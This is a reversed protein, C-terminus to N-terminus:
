PNTTTTSEDRTPHMGCTATLVVIAHDEKWPVEEVTDVDFGTEEVLQQWFCTSVFQHDNILPLEVIGLTGTPKCVRHLEDIIRRSETESLDHLVMNVTLVDVSNDQFPLDTGDGRVFTVDLDATATNRAALQPGNGLIVRDDFRDVGIVTSNDLHSALGVLSRGTGCGVDVVTDADELPLHAALVEYKDDHVTWPRPRFLKRLDTAAALSGLVALAAILKKKASTFPYTVAVLLVAIGLVALSWTHKQWHYIGFYYKM